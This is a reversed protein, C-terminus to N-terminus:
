KTEIKHSREKYYNVLEEGWSIASSDFSVVDQRSDFIGNKFFFSISFFVDTVVCALKIDDESVYFCLNNFGLGRELRDHYEKDVKNFAKRTLVLTVETGNEALQLFFDPYVPHVIPSIGMLKRSKLINDLFEKHPEYIEEIGSEILQINGLERMKMLLPPPVADLDHERWFEEQGEIVGLTKVFPSLNSIIVEGIRTLAYKKNEERVLNREELIRIQPLMGTATVNLTRRIEAMTKPGSELLLLLNKRKDSSTIISLLDSM